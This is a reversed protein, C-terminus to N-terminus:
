LEAKWPELGKEVSFSWVVEELSKRAPPEPQEGPYGLTVVAQPEWDEPLRLAKKVEEQCFLPACVWCAGLGEGYAALLLNQIAAAVSQVAMLREARMRREDPYRDMVKMTLCVVLLVPAETFRKISEEEVIRLAEEEPVGDAKLDKLWVEAMAEALARKAGAEEVVVFRWPQSNHASPAWRAVELVRPLVSRPVRSKRYSRVSRRGKIAEYLEM